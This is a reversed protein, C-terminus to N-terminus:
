LWRMPTQTCRCSLHEASTVLKCEFFIGLGQCEGETISGGEPVYEYVGLMRGVEVVANTEEKVERRLAAHLTEGQEVGGGPYNYHPGSEDNFKVLLIMGARVIVARVSVRINQRNM